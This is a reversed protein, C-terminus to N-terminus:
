NSTLACHQGENRGGVWEKEEVVQLGGWDLAQKHAKNDKKNKYKTLQQNCCNNPERKGWLHQLSSLAGVGRRM